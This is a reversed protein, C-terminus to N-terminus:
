ERMSGKKQRLTESESHTYRRQSRERKARKTAKERWVRKEEDRMRDWNDPKKM